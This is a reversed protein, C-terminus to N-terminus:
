QEIVKTQAMKARWQAAKEPKNWAEYLGILNNLSEKTHPHIEGLKLRRGEVAEIFLPEAKQYDGQEGYLVALDNKTKLTSPHDKGLGFIRGELAQRFLSEAIDYRKNKRCLIALSNLSSLTFPHIESSVSRGIRLANELLLKAEDYRNLEIYLDALENMAWVTYVHETGLTRCKGALVDTLVQEAKQYRNQDRYVMGLGLTFDLTFPHEPGRVRRCTELTKLFLSEAEEYRGQAHYLLALNGTLLLTDEYKEGSVRRGIELAELYLSEAEEYRGLLWYQLGLGTMYLLTSPHERGLVRRGREVIKVFVEEGEKYRGQRWYLWGLECLCKLMDPHEEGVHERYLELARMQHHEAKKFACLNRYSDALTVRIAAEVLPEDKFRNEIRESAIDLFSHATLERGMATHPDVSALLDNRLFDSVAESIRAQQQADNRARAQGIAFLTSVIIGGILVIMVAAAGMVLAKHRHVYKKFRYATSEPGAIVPLGSLYNRIDNALESASQYRHEREKRMAMLPIWELEKRLKKTLAGAETCRNQAIVVAKEGLSSLCKSPTKPEQQRIAQRIRDIGGERFTKSDFPMAGTLLVYLLAGLSYVDSRTDVDESAMEAQEPSMYEPTGVLQGQETYLTRENLPQSIARAVGFDIVKPVAQEGHVSILINSPKIDRHIIGKQHAFEVVHCVQLFLNLRDEISLKYKDCHETISLGKVYEMVFYPRGNEATGADHVHAINPHDLLALTQREAEFRAIVRASDMGPKIVKLAVQRRVPEEQRALYVIGMGGEGLVSLLKYRGILSGINKEETPGNVDSQKDQCIEQADCFLRKLEPPIWKKEILEAFSEALNEYSYDDIKQEHFLLLGAIAAYYITFLVALEAESSVSLSLKRTYDSLNQLVVTDSEPDLLVRILSKEGPLSSDGGFPGGLREKLIDALIQDDSAIDWSKSGDTGVSLIRRLQERELGYISKKDM